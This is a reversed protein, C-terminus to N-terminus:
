GGERHRKKGDSRARSNCLFLVLMMPIGVIWSEVVVLM